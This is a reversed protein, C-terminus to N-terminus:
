YFLSVSFPPTTEPLPPSQSLFFHLFPLFLFSFLSLFFYLFNSLFSFSCSSPSLSPSFLLTFPPSVPDDKVRVAQLSQTSATNHRQVSDFWMVARYFALPRQFHVESFRTNMKLMCLVTSVISTHFDKHSFYDAPWWDLLPCNSFESEYRDSLKVKSKAIDHIFFHFFM